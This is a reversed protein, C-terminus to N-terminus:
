RQRVKGQKAFQSTSFPLEQQGEGLIWEGFREHVICQTVTTPIAICPLGTLTTTKIMRFRKDLWGLELLLAKVHKADKPQVFVVKTTESNKLAKANKSSTTCSNDSTKHELENEVSYIDEVIDVDVVLYHSKAYEEGFSFSQAGGGVLLFSDETVPICSHHIMSAFDFQERGIPPEFTLSIRQLCLPDKENHRNFVWYACLPEVHRASAHAVPVGGATILLRKSFLTCCSMGFFSGLDKVISEGDCDVVHITDVVMVETTPLLTDLDHTSARIELAFVTTPNIDEADIKTPLLDRTSELGGAVLIIDNHLLSAAHYFRPSPLKTALREWYFYCRNEQRENGTGSSHTELCMHLVFIDDTAGDGQNCGGVLLARNTTNLSVLVHGWRPSPLERGRVDMVRVLRDKATDLIYLKDSPRTPGARGGWLITFHSMQCPTIGQLEPVQELPEVQLLAKTMSNGSRWPFEFYTDGEMDDSCSLAEQWECNWTYSTDHRTLKFIKSSRKPSAELPGSGYGGIVWINQKGDQTSNAPMAAANWLNLTAPSPLHRIRIPAPYRRVHFLNGEIARYLRELQKWNADLRQNGEQVLARLFVPPAQLSSVQSTEHNSIGMDPEHCPFPWLPVALALSYSRIAVTVRTRTVVLGSERFGLELALRLLQQGWPLSAAAVHLLMPEFKFTWSQRMTPKFQSQWPVSDNQALADVLAQPSLKDHSVLIWRGHGKGARATMSPSQSRFRAGDDRSLDGIVNDTSDDNSGYSDGNPDFLSMRGSCSSLSCFHSHQNILDVLHQIPADVSGKPSKDRPLKIGSSSSEAYLTQRTKRQLEEFSPLPETDVWNQEELVNPELWHLPLHNYCLASPPSNIIHDNCSPSNQIEGKELDGIGNWKTPDNM